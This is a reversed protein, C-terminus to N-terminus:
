RPVSLIEDLVSDIREKREEVSVQMAVQTLKRSISNEVVGYGVETKPPEDMQLFSFFVIHTLFGFGVCDDWLTLQSWVTM